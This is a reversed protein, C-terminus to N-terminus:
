FKVALKAYWEAPRSYTGYAQGGALQAQGTVLYRDNTLNTGGATLTYHDGPDNYAISANIINTSPRMLLFYGETDNRMRTTYTYDGLLVVKGGNGLRHELRPSINFKWKPTKPLDAGAFM